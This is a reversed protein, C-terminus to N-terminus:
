NKIFKIRTGAIRREHKWRMGGHFTAGSLIGQTGYLTKLIAQSSAMDLGPSLLDADHLNYGLWLCMQTLPCLIRIPITVPQQFFGPM